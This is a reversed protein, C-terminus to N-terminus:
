RRLADLGERALTEALRRLAAQRNAETLLVDAGSLYAERETVRTQAKTEGDVVLKLSLTASLQYGPLAGPSALLVGATVQEVSGELRAPGEPGGLAGWRQLQERLAQTVFVEAGAEATLNGLMPVWAAKVEGPLGASPRVFRYGCSATLVAVALAVSRLV